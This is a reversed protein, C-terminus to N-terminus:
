LDEVSPLFHKEYDSPSASMDWDEDEDERSVDEESSDIVQRYDNTRDLLMSDNRELREPEQLEKDHEEETQQQDVEPLEVILEDETVVLSDSITVVDVQSIALVHGPANHSVLWSQPFQNNNQQFLSSNIPDPIKLWVRGQLSSSYCAIVVIIVLLFTLSLMVSVMVVVVTYDDAKKTFAITAREGEGAVTVARIWVQYQQGPNLDTLLVSNVVSTVTWVKGAHNSLDVTYNLIVGQSKDLPITKWTLNVTSSSVETVHLDTVKPPVGQVTYKIASQLLHSCNNVVAFLSINYATYNWFPGRLTVSNQTRNVKVWNLCPKHPLGIPKHQVVYEQISEIFQSPVSWSVKLSETEGTVKLHVEPIPLGTSPLAVLAPSSQGWSSNATVCIDKVEWIPITLQSYQFCSQDQEQPCSLHNQYAHEASNAKADELIRCKTGHVADIYEANDLGNNLKVSVLYGSIKGRAQFKPMEKWLITCSPKDSNIECDSWVDLKGVPARAPSTTSYSSWNSMIREETDDCGCRVRFIYVTFPVPDNLVISRESTEIIETWDLDCEKKYQVECIMVESAMEYDDEEIEWSIEFPDFTSINIVPPFPERINHTNFIAEESKVSGFASVATVWVKMHFSASYNNRPIVGHNSNGTILFGRNRDVDDWHEYRAEYVEEWHLTFNAPNLVNHLSNWHCHINREGDYLPILCTPPSYGEKITCNGPAQGHCLLVCSVSQMVQPSLLTTFNATNRNCRHPVAMTENKSAILDLQCQGCKQLFNPPDAHCEIYVSHIVSKDKNWWCRVDQGFSAHVCLCAFFFLRFLPLVLIGSQWAM